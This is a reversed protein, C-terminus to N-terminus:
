PSTLFYPPPSSDPIILREKISPAVWRGREWVHLWIFFGFGITLLYLALERTKLTLYLHAIAFVCVLLGTVIQVAEVLFQYKYRSLTLKMGFDFGDCFSWIAINLWLLMTIIIHWRLWRLWRGKPNHHCAFPTKALPTVTIGSRPSREPTIASKGPCFERFEETPPRPLVAGCVQCHGPPADQYNVLMQCVTCTINHAM